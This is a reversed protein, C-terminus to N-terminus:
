SKVEKARRLALAIVDHPAKQSKKVFVLVVILRKGSAVLYIARAIGDRGRMRMEWLKDVLHRVYPERVNEPGFEELLEVIRVFSARMDTPLANLEKEVRRDLIEVTWGCSRSYRLNAICDVAEPKIPM